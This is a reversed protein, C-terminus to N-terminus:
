KGRRSRTMAVTVDCGSLSNVVSRVKPQKLAFPSLLFIENETPTM